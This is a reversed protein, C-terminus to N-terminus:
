LVSSFLFYSEWSSGTMNLLILQFQPTCLIVVSVNCKKGKEEKREWSSGGWVQTQEECSSSGQVV